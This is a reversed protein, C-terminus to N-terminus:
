FKYALTFILNDSASLLPDWSSIRTVHLKYALKLSFNGYLYYRIGLRISANTGSLLTLLKAPSEDEEETDVMRLGLSLISLRFSGEAQLAPRIPFIIESSVGLSFLGAFSQSYDFGSVAVNQKNHFIYIGMSPGLFAYVDRTFLSMQSLPYLFGQNLSFQIIDASINYNKIKSSSRYELDLYYGYKNHFRSWSAKFLPLTGSYKEKSIYEDRVSYNGLGYEVSIGRPFVTRHSLSDQGFSKGAFLLIALSIFIFKITM